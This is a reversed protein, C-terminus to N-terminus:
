VTASRPVALPTGPAERVVYAPAATSSTRSARRTSPAGTGTSVTKKPPPVGVSSLGVSRPATSPAMSASSPSAGPASTVVSAFGSLTVLASRTASRSAPNVRIENPM